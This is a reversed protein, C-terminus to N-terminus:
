GNVLNGPNIWKKALCPVTTNRVETWQWDSIKFHCLMSNIAINWTTTCSKGKMDSYNDQWYPYNSLNCEEYGWKDWIEALKEINRYM